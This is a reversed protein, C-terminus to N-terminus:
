SILSSLIDGAISHILFIVWFNSTKHYLMGLVLSLVFAGVMYYFGKHLHVCAFFLSSLIVAAVGAKKKGYVAFIREINEHIFVRALFEQLFVSFPYLMHGATINSPVFRSWNFFPLGAPLTGPALVMVAWKLLFFCVVTIPIYVLSMKVASKLNSLKMGSKRLSLSTFRYTIACAISGVLLCGWTFWAGLEGVASFMRLFTFVFAYLFLLGMICAIIIASDRCNSEREV